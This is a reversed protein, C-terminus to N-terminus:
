HCHCRSLLAIMKFWSTVFTVFSVFIKMSDGLNLSVSVGLLCHSALSSEHLLM